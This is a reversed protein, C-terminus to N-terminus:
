SGPYRDCSAFARARMPLGRRRSHSLQSFAALIMNINVDNLTLVTDCLLLDSLRHPVSFHMWSAQHQQCADQLFYKQLMVHHPAQENQM